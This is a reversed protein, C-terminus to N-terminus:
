ERRAVVLRGGGQQGAGLDLQAARQALADLVRAPLRRWFLGFARRRGIRVQQLLELADWGAVLPRRLYPQVLEIRFGARALHAQWGAIPWLNHHSLQRNRWRSYRRSPLALWAGCSETPVTFVLYGGPRLLRVAVALVEDINLIHELVSNSVITALSSEPLGCREIAAPM